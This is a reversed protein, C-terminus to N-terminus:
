AVGGKTIMLRERWALLVDTFSEVANGLADEAAFAADDYRATLYLVDDAGLSLTAGRTATWFRNAALAARLFHAPHATGAIPGVAARCLVTEPDEEPLIFFIRGARTELPVIPGDPADTGVPLLGQLTEQFTSM